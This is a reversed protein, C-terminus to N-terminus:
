RPAEEARAPAAGAAGASEDIRGGDGGVTDGPTGAGPTGDGPQAAPVGGSSGGDVSRPTGLPTLEGKSRATEIFEVTESVPGELAKMVPRPYVGLVVCLVALPVLVGIERASLDTPLV